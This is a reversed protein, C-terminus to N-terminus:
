TTATIDRTEYWEVVCHFSPGAAAPKIILAEGKTLALGELLQAAAQGHQPFGSAVNIAKVTGSTDGVYVAQAASVLCTVVVNLINITVGAVAAKITASSDGIGLTVAKSFRQYRESPLM